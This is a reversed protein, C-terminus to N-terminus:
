QSKKKAAASDSRFAHIIFALIVQYVISIIDHTTLSLNEHLQMALLRVLNVSIIATIGSYVTRSSQNAPIGFPLAAFLQDLRGSNSLNFSITPVVVMLLTYSLLLILPQLSSENM